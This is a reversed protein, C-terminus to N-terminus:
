SLITHTRVGANKNVSTNISLVNHVPSVRESMDASGLREGIEELSMLGGAANRVATQALIGHEHLFSRAHTQVDILAPNMSDASNMVKLVYKSGGGPAVVFFNQDDYSPLPRVTSLELGYLRRVLELVHAESLRPKTQESM